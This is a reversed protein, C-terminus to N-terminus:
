KHSILANKLFIRITGDCNVSIYDIVKRLDLNTFSDLNLFDIVEQRYEDILEEKRSNAALRREHEAMNYDIKELADSIESTKARLEEMSIMDNVYLEQYRDRKKLLDRKQRELKEPDVADSGHRTREEVAATVESLFKEKDCIVSSLYDRIAAILEEERISVNNPCKAATYQNNIACRWFISEGHKRKRRKRSFARGCHECRILTSFIHKSSYRADHFPEADFYFKKKRDEMQAQAMDFTEKSIIAWEPREHHLHEDKPLMVQKGSLYDDVKYKHNIFHGCYIPNMVVRRVGIANWDNGFKTKRNERNLRLSISHFGMGEDVYLHFIERVIDAEAENIALTYNDIHDYGFIRQPARGRKASVMKGFKVRKSLNAIEEQAMAGFITLVFESDGLSEMNATVFITNIGYAKLNRISQLFDVTNRAFRSIDKVAVIDFLKYKADEMLRKFEERKSLSKGSIGEDAYVRILKHGNKQAYEQFFQRQNELSNLQEENETSVRCYAAMRM